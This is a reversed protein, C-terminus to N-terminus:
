TLELDKLLLACGKAVGKTAEDSGPLIAWGGKEVYGTQKYPTQAKFDELTTVADDAQRFNQVCMPALAAIVAGTAGAEAQKEATTELMWGGWNFGVVMAAVAGFATGQLLRAISEGQLVEPLKM